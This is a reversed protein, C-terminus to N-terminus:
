LGKLSGNLNVFKRYCPQGPKPTILSHGKRLVKARGKAIQNL